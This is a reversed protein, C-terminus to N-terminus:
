GLAIWTAERGKGTASVAVRVRQGENLSMVGCQRLVSKHVFIDKGGDDAAIFGFGKEAAFWKVAGPIQGDVPEPMPAMPRAPAAQVGSTDAEIIRLVQPGKPGQGIECLIEAGEPLQAVGFRQLSSAHIFADPTGNAPAVFGFGKDPNFWKVRAKVQVGTPRPPRPKSSFSNNSM